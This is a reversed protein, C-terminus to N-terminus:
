CGRFFGEEIGGFRTSDWDWTVYRIVADADVWGWHTGMRFRAFARLMGGSRESAPLGRKSSLAGIM